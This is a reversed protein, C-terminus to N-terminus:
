LNLIAILAPMSELQHIITCAAENCKTVLAKEVNEVQGIAHMALLAGSEAVAQAQDASHSAAQVLAWAAAIKIGKQDNHALAVTLELLGGLSIVM